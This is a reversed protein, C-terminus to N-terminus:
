AARWSVGDRLRLTGLGAFGTLLLLISSPEPTIEPGVDSQFQITDVAGTSWGTQLGLQVTGDEIVPCGIFACSIGLGGIETDSFFGLTMFPDCSANQDFFLNPNCTFFMQDSTLANPGPDGIHFNELPFGNPFTTVTAGQNPTEIVTCSEGVCSASTIVAATSTGTVSVTLTETNDLFTITFGDVPITGARVEVASLVFMCALLLAFRFDKPRRCGTSFLSLKRPTPKDVVQNRM